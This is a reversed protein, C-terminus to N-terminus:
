VTIGVPLLLGSSKSSFKAQMWHINLQMVGGGVAVIVTTQNFLIAMPGVMILPQTIKAADSSNPSEIVLTRSNGPTTTVLALRASETLGGSQYRMDLVQNATDGNVHQVNCLAVVIGLPVTMKVERRQGVAILEADQFEGLQWKEPDFM